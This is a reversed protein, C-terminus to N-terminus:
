KGIDYPSPILYSLGVLGWGAVNSIRERGCGVCDLQGFVDSLGRDFRLEASLAVRDSLRINTGLGGTIGFDFNQAPSYELLYLSSLFNIPDGTQKQLFAWYSGARVYLLFNRDTHGIVDFRFSFPVELYHYYQQREYRKNGKRAYDFGTGIAVRRGLYFDVSGGMLLGTVRGAGFPDNRTERYNSLNAFGPGAHFGIRIQQAQAGSVSLFLLLVWLFLSKM